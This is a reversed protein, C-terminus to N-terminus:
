SHGMRGKVGSLELCQALAQFAPKVFYFRNLYLDIHSLVFIIETNIVILSLKICYM